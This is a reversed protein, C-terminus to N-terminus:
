ENSGKLINMINRKVDIKSVVFIDVSEKGSQGEVEYKGWSGTINVEDAIEPIPSDGNYIVPLQYAGCGLNKCTLLEDTDVVFFVNPDVQYIGANVGTITIEGTFSLPDSKIDNITLADVSEEKKACGTSFGAVIIALMMIIIIKKM